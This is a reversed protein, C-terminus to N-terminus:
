AIRKERALVESSFKILITTRRENEVLVAHATVKATFETAELIGEVIGALFSNCNLHSMDRPVSIFKTFLIEKEILMYEDENETSKELSDVKKGFLSNWVTTSIFNLIGYIKTERKFNRERVCLLDLFKVGIQYGCDALKRELEQTMNVRQQCYQILESFLFAFASLSVETKGKSIPRDVINLLKKSKDM